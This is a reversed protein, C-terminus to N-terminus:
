PNGSSGAGLLAAAEAMRLEAEIRRFVVPPREPAPLAALEAQVEELLQRARDRQGNQHYAMALFLRPVLGPPEQALATTKELALVADAYRGARYLLAGNIPDSALDDAPLGLTETVWRFFADYKFPDTANLSYLDAITRFVEDRSLYRHKSARRCLEAYDERRGTAMHLIACQHWVQGVPDGLLCTQWLSEAAEERRGLMLQCIGSDYISQAHDSQPDVLAISRAHDQEAEQWQQLEQRAAGRMAWADARTPDQELVSSCTRIVEQWRELESFVSARLELLDLRGPARAALEDLHWLAPEWIADHALIGLMKRNWALRAEEKQQSDFFRPHRQHFDSWRALWEEATLIVMGGGEHITKGALIEAMLCLDDDPLPYRDLLQHLPLVDIGKALGTGILAFREDPTLTVTFGMGSLLFPPAVLRGSAADCVRATADHGVTIVLRDQDLFAGDTVENDHEIPPCVMQRSDLDWIRAMGDRCATLLRKGSSDFCASFVADPHQISPGLAAGTALSWFRAQGDNGVTVLTDGDPAWAVNHCFKETDIPDRLPAGTSADVVAVRSDIGWCLIRSGQPGFRLTGNNIYDFTTKDGDLVRVEWQKAGTAADFCLLYGSGTMVALNQGSPHFAVARGAAVEVPGWLSMATGWDWLQVAGETLTAAHRHIPSFAAAQLRGGPPRLIPGASQGSAIEYVRTTLLAASIHTSGAPLAYRGDASLVVQSFEGEIPLLSHARCGEPRQWIRVFGGEYAVAIADARHSFQVGWVNTPHQIPGGLPKGDKVNWLQATHDWSGTLLLQSDPSFALSVIDNLHDMVPALREGTRVDTLRVQRWSVGAVIRGDPSVAMPRQWKGCDHPLTRIQKGSEADWWQFDGGGATLIGRDDDLFTPAVYPDPAFSYHPLPPYLPESHESPIAFVYAQRTEEDTTILRDSRRNFVLAQIPRPHTLEPTAYQRNQYDWVRITSRGGALFQSNPSFDLHRVPEGWQLSQLVECEPFTTIVVEGAANGLALMHGDPSWAALCGPEFGPPLTVLTERPLDWIYSAGEAAEALLYRDSPHFEVRYLKEVGPHPLVTAPRLTSQSWNHARRRNVAAEKTGLRAASAFWLVAEPLRNLRSATLGSSTFMSAVTEQAEDRAAQAERALRRQWLASGTALLAVTILLLMAAATLGAVLPNRRSWRWLREAGIVPRAAIPEGRTWHNLDDALAQASGYRRHPEKAMAKLCIAELARPCRDNFRRPPPPEDHLVQHLLIRRGGRFPLEGTLMQYLVVGLSYVDSRADIGAPNGRAQEPSMYAPTGLIEGELTVAIEGEERRALGFDALYPNGARDVMVNGPKIDRHIVGQGHAYQLAEALRAVLTATERFEPIGEALFEALTRGEIFDLVIFPVAREYAVDHVRVIAPHNLQAASRAERLFRQEEETSGFYGARPVKIAVLHDLQPDHAKYVTGFAGRGLRELVRFRGLFSPIGCQDAPETVAETIPFTSGCNQCIVQRPEVEILQIRNGCHPCRLRIARERPNGGSPTVDSEPGAAGAANDSSMAAAAEERFAGAIGREYGPFRARYEAPRPREGRRRRYDLDLRVLERLLSEREPEPVDGLRDEIRPPAGGAHWAREFAGCARDIRELAEVSLSDGPHDSAENM